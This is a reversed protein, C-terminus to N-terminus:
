KAKGLTKVVNGRVQMKVQGFLFWWGGQYVSADLMLDGHGKDLADDVAENLHPLGLSYFRTHVEVIRWGGEEAAVHGFRLQGLQRQANLAGDYRGCADYM